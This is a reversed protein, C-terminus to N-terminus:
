FYFIDIHDIRYVFTNFITLFNNIYKMKRTIPKVFQMGYEYMYKTYNGEVM